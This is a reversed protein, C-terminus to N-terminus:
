DEKESKLTEEFTEMGKRIMDNLAYEVYFDLEGKDMEVEMTCMGKEPHDENIKIVKM